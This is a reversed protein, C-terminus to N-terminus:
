GRGKYVRRNANNYEVSKDVEFLLLVIFMLLSTVLVLLSAACLLVMMAGGGVVDSVVRVTMVTLRDLRM